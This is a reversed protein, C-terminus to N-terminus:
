KPYGLAKDVALGGDDAFVDAPSGAVSAFPVVCPPLPVQAYLKALGM